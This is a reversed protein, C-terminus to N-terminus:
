YEKKRGKQSPCGCDIAGLSKARTQRTIRHTATHQPTNRHTATHQTTNRPTATDQLANCHTAYYQLTNCHTATRQATDVSLLFLIHPFIRLEARFEATINYPLHLLLSVKFIKPANDSAIGTTAGLYKYVYTCLFNTTIIIKTM